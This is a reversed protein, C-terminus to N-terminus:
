LKRPWWHYPQFTRHTIYLLRRTGVILLKEVASATSAAALALLLRLRRASFTTGDLFYFHFFFIPRVIVKKGHVADWVQEIRIIFFTKNIRALYSNSDSFLIPVIEQRARM